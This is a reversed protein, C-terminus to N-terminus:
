ETLTRIQEILAVIKSVTDLGRLSAPILAAIRRWRRSVRAPDPDDEAAAEIIDDIDEPELDTTGSAAIQDRLRGLESRLETLAETLTDTSGAGVNITGRVHGTNGSGGITGAVIQSGTISVDFSGAHHDPM